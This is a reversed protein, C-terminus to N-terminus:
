PHVVPLAPNLPKPLAARTPECVESCCHQTWGYKTDIHPHPRKLCGCSCMCCLDKMVLPLESQSQHFPITLSCCDMLGEVFHGFAEWPFARCDLSCSPSSPRWPPETTLLVGSGSPVSPVSPSCDGHSSRQSSTRCSHDDSSITKARRSAQPFQSYM